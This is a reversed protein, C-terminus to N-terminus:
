SKFLKGKFMNLIEFLLERFEKFLVGYIVLLVSVVVISFICTYVFWLIYGDVNMLAIFQHSLLCLVTTILLAIIYEIFYSSLSKKFKKKYMLYPYYWFTTVFISFVTAFLVGAIGFPVVLLLSLTLNIVSEAVVSTRTEKFMAFVDRLINMPKRAFNQFTCLLLLIFAMDDLISDAGMWINMFSNMVFSLVVCIFSAIFYYMYNVKKYVVFRRENEEAYMANGVSALIASTFSYVFDSLTKVIYNYNTYIITILPSIFASLVLADTNDHVAGTFKHMLASGMGKIELGEYNKDEKLWPYEKFVRRNILYNMMYRVFIGAILIYVFDFGLMICVVEVFMEVVRLANYLVNIKYIKQDAQLVFRPSFMLYDVCNKILFLAFVLQMYWLPLTNDKALFKLFFSVVTGIGIMILTVQRLKHKSLAYYKCITEKDDKTFLKYYEKQVIAGIGAEAMSLYAFIQFFVQNLAYVEDGLGVRFAKLKFFGLFTIIILPIFTTLFNKLSNIKRM